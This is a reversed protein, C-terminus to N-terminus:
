HIEFRLLGRTIQKLFLIPTCAASALGYHHVCVRLPALAVLAILTADGVRLTNGVRM